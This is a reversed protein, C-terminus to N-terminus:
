AMSDNSFLIATGPVGKEVILHHTLDCSWSDQSNDGFGNLVAILVVTTDLIHNFAKFLFWLQKYGDRLKKARFDESAVIQLWHIVCEIKDNISPEVLGAVEKFFVVHIVLDFLDLRQSELHETIWM